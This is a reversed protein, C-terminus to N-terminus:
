YEAYTTEMFVDFSSSTKKDLKSYQDQHFGGSLTFSSICDTKILRIKNTSNGRVSLAVNVLNSHM